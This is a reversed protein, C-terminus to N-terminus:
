YDSETEGELFEQGGDDMKEDEEDLNEKSTRFINVKELPKQILASDILGLQNHKLGM